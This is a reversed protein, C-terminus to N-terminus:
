SSFSLKQRIGIVLVSKVYFRCSQSNKVSHIPIQKPRPTVQLLNYSGQPVSATVHHPFCLNPEDSNSTMSAGPGGGHGVGIGPEKKLGTVTGFATSCYHSGLRGGVGTAEGPLLRTIGGESKKLDM